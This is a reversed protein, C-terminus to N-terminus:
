DISNTPNARLLIYKMSVGEIRSCGGFTLFGIQKSGLIQSACVNYGLTAPACYYRVTNPYFSDALTFQVFKLIHTTKEVGDTTSEMSAPISTVLNFNCLLGQVFPDTCFEPDRRPVEM